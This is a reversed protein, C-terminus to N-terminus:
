NSVESEIMNYYMYENIYKVFSNYSMAYFDDYSIIGSTMETGNDFTFIICGNVYDSSTSNDLVLNYQFGYWIGDYELYKHGRNYDSKIENFKLM